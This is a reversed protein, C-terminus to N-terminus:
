RENSTRQELWKRHQSREYALLREVRAAEVVSFLLQEPLEEGCVGCLRHRRSYVISRCQPCRVVKRQPGIQRVLGVTGVAQVPVSFSGLESETDWVLNLYAASM